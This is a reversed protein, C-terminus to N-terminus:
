SLGGGGYIVFTPNAGGSVCLLMCLGYEALTRNGTSSTGALRLTVNSGQTITQPSSSNNFIYVVDSTSFVNAPVTVGGTTISIHKGADSGVLTYAGTQANQPIASVSVGTAGQLGSIGTFGQVGTYGTDGFPTFSVVVQQDNLFTDSGDVYNVTVKRWNAGGLGTGNSVATVAFKLYINQNSGLHFTLYGKVPNTSNDWSDLWAAVSPDVSETNTFTDIYVYGPSM